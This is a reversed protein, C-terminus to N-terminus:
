SKFLNKLVFFVNEKRESLRRAYYAQWQVGYPVYVTMNHGKERIRSWTKERMGYLMQFEYKENPIHNKEIFDMCFEIIDDDHSAICVRQGQTLLKQILKKYNEVIIPMKKLALEAPEKYAGKCLRVRGNATLVREIDAETRLLYAQLVIEIYKFEKAAREYIAITRETYQTGEMDLAVRIEYHDAVRMIQSLNNYCFDFDIDLGLMTLKISVYCNLKKESIKKLLIDYEEVFKIAQKQETINEGLLDLTVCINKENLREVTAFAEEINIGSVFKKAYFPISSM